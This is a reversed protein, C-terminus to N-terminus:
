ERLLEVIKPRDQEIRKLDIKFGSSAAIALYFNILEKSWAGSVVDIPTEGRSNKAATSAGKKLLFRVVETRCLFAAVHLPTNGDANSRTLDAGTDILYKAIELNGHLAATSLPTSGDSRRKNVATKDALIKKIATLDGRGIATTLPDRQLKHNEDLELKLEVASGEDKAVHFLFDNSFMGDPVQVQLLHWGIPPLSELFIVVEEDKKGKEIRVNGAVRRGNVFVRADNGFHRGSVTMSKRGSHLIPFDQRGRQQEISGITWLAPQPQDLSAKAGHRATITGFFKGDAGQALLEKRSFSARDGEKRVYNGGKHLADFQLAVRGANKGDLFVGDCELVVAGDAAASELAALLDITLKDSATTTNLTLQRAFAGSFGASMELVMDWVSDFRTRGGWSFQWIERELAGKEIVRRFFDFEIINLRGQPLILWRDQAGRWTPADMGTGPTNTSVLFPMRHCNGCVNPTPQKPDHDGDIHFLSFGAMARESVTNTYARKPAPPFPVALLYMAMDDREKASLEGIKGEDNKKTDGVLHM